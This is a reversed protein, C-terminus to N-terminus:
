TAHPERQTAEAVNNRADQARKEISGFVTSVDRKCAARHRRFWHGGFIAVLAAFAILSCLLNITHANM